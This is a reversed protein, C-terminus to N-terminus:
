GSCPTSAFEHPHASDMAAFWQRELAFDSFMVGPHDKADSVESEDRQVLLEAPVALFQKLGRGM